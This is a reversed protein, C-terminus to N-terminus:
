KGFTTSDYNVFGQLDHGDDEKAQDNSSVRSVIGMHLPLQWM